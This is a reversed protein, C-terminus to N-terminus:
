FQEGKGINPNMLNNIDTNQIQGNLDMDANNYGSNGLISIVSSVDLNQIQANGDYDGAPMAYLGNSLQVVSNLGGLIETSGDTFDLIIVDFSVNIATATVIGLHNRHKIAIFYNNDITSFTLPSSGDVDVILGNRQLLASRSERIITHDDKDRLEIWVWDVIANGGIPDFATSTADIADTYPSTTPILGAIRLDDRMLNEEGTNPNLAAGQLSVQLSLTFDNTCSTDNFSTQADINTWNATSYAVDDVTICTLNPNNRADFATIATNNNNKVTLQQLNNRNINIIKLATNTRLDLSILENNEVVLNELLSSNSLDLEALENGFLDLIRLSTMDSLDLSTLNNSYLRLEDLLTLGVGNFDTLANESANVLTLLPNNSVDLSTLQNGLCSLFRLDSLASLDLDQIANHNCRLGKLASFNEIGTLDSISNNSVDLDIITEILATPVQGDGSVNDYGLNELATEFNSDPITTYRCFTDSFSSQPDIAWNITSYTVDDVLICTLNANGQSLFPSISTNNGNKLNVNTLNSNEIVVEGLFINQSLDLYGNSITISELNLSFLEFNNTVNLNTLQLNKMNLEELDNLTSLDISAIAIDGITLINLDTNKTLDLVGLNPNSRISLQILRTNTSIDLTTLDNDDLSLEELDDLNTLDVFTLNNQNAALQILDVSNKLDLTTLSNNRVDLSILRIFDQIGTLDSIGQNSLSLSRIEEILATPAQGDGSIDDYGLNELATEFNTDPIATYRCFTDSFSTQPEINTWNTTSYTADDVLICSLATSGNTSFSQISTNTGNKIDVGTINTNRLTVGLLNLNKSLNLYTDTLTTNHIQLYNLNTNNALDLAELQMERLELTILNNQNSLDFTTIANEELELSELLTNQSVDIANLNLNERLDLRKLNTNSTLDLTNLNNQPLILDELFLLNSVDVASLNNNTARIRTLKTNNSLDLNTLNNNEVALTTLATNQSLDLSTLNNDNCNLLRLARFDEIGTLDNIGKFFVNLETVDEILATPVQGDGAIDDYGLVGLAIEFNADPISTNVCYTDSFSTTADIGTWNTTSYAADDVLICSLNPNNYTQFYVINTNNGNRVDLFSLNNNYVYVNELATLAALDLSEIANEYLSLNVLATNTSLDISSLKPNFTVFLQELATNTSLDVSSLNLNNVIYLQELATNTSLDISSLVAEELFLEKLNVNSTLNISTIPNELLDVEELYINGSFDASSIANEGASLDKLMKFDEIGTIDTINKRSISLRSINEILATPVQGDASIDDYGLADLRAEFNADPIATYRCFTDSFSTGTDIITWNSSSYSADDVRICTLNPNTTARFNTIATNNGNKINFNTLANNRVDVSVLNTNNSANIVEIKNSEILLARLQLNNSIDLSTLDNDLLQLTNLATLTSLDITVLSNRELRVEELLTNASLDIQTFQNRGLFLTRLQSLNSLDVANLRNQRANLLELAKFDEIGTLDSINKSNVDLSTVVEILDTPVQGDGSVDDYGLNELALEFNIDPIATYRCFNDNFVNSENDINTWNNTSYVVDDVLICNLNPTSITSFQTININNGNKVNLVDLNPNNSAVVETLLSNSSTNLSQINCDNVHLKTLLSNNSVDLNELNSNGAYLEILQLNNSIDLTTHNNYSVDFIELATFNEIGTFDSIANMSVNLSTVVEILETPVQGDGSIDDYGLAELAAEFNADPIATYDCYISFFTQSDIETWNTTSYAPDDVLICSLDSNTTARFTTIATNNGNEINFNTLQNKRVDVSILNINNSADIAELANDEVLLERLQLNNSIDLSTLDNDLLQIIELEALASLDISALTNREIRVQELLTNSSLDIQTLQNRGLFLNKLYSLNSIDITSLNNRSANLTELAIFAEIGTLDTIGRNNVDLATVVEILDTPVQGDGSIDDYGLSELATEFNADPIATYRTDTLSAENSTVQMEDGVKGGLTVLKINTNGSGKINKYVKVTHVTYINNRQTDWQSEIQLVQGEIIKTAENVRSEISLLKMLTGCVQSFISHPIYLLLIILLKKRM